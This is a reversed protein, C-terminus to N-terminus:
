EKRGKEFKQYKAKFAALLNDQATSDCCIEKGALRPCFKLPDAATVPATLIGDTSTILPNNAQKLLPNNCDGAFSVAVLVVFLTFAKM